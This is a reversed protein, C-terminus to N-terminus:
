RYDVIIRGELHVVCAVRWNQMTESDLNCGVLWAMKADFGKESKYDYKLGFYWLQRSAVPKILLRTLQGKDSTKTETLQVNVISM